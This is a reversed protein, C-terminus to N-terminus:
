SQRLASNLWEYLFGQADELDAIERVLNGASKVFVPGDFIRDNM